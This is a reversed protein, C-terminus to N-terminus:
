HPDFARGDRWGDFLVKPYLQLFSPLRGALGMNQAQGLKMLLCLHSRQEAALRPMSRPSQLGLRVLSIRTAGEYKFSVKLKARYAIVKGEEGEPPVEEHPKSGCLGVHGRKPQRLSSFADDSLQFGPCARALRAAGRAGHQTGAVQVRGRERKEKSQV